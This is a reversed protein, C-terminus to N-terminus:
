TAAATITITDYVETTFNTTNYPVTLLVDLYIEDTGDQYDFDDCYKVAGSNNADAWVDLTADGGNCAGPEKDSVNWKYEQEGVAGFLGSANISAQLSITTNVNGINEIVIANPDATWNGRSVSSSTQSTYLTANTEGADVSGNGWQVADTTVNISLRSFVTINVYGSANGTIGESITFVFTILAIVFLVIAFIGFADVSKGDSKNDKNKIPVDKAM